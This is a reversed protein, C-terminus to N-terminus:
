PLLEGALMDDTKGESLDLNGVDWTFYDAFEDTPSLFPHAEGDGKIQTTEYLPEWKARQAAYAADVETGNFRETLPFMVGNSLNGNHAIALVAGNTKAEYNEMWTYLDMPDRSGIPPTTTLPVIQGARGPGDRFIVNRHMNRGRDLSTWEFGLIASFRGPENYREAVRLNDSWITAYRRSGPSYTAILDPEIEGQSFTTILDKTTDVATQGGTRFGQSWKRGQEFRTVSPRAALLDMIMGMGDSHETIVLWDLPRDLRVRQGSTATIEEGRAFRWADDHYLRAGFGGADMSQGTHLHTDGWLPRQPFTRGAYPSYAPAAYRDVLADSTIHAGSLGTEGSVALNGTSASIALAGIGVAIQRFM